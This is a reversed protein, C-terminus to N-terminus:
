KGEKPSNGRIKELAATTTLWGKTASKLQRELYHLQKELERIKRKEWSPKYRTKQKEREATELRCKEMYDRQRQALEEAKAFALAETPFLCSEAYISGSPCGTEEAMYYVPENERNTDITVKVITIQMTFALYEQHTISGTIGDWGHACTSCPIEFDEGNPLTVYWKKQGLCDPCPEYKNYSECSALWATDGIDYKPQPVQFM